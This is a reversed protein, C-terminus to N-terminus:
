STAVRRVRDVDRNECGELLAVAARGLKRRQGRSAREGERAGPLQHGCKVAVALLQNRRDFARRRDHQWPAVPHAGPIATLGDVIRDTVREITALVVTDDLPDADTHVCIYDQEPYGSSPPATLVRVEM